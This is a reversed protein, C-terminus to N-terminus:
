VHCFRITTRKNLIRSYIINLTPPPMYMPAMSVKNKEKLDPLYSIPYLAINDSGNRSLGISKIRTIELNFYDDSNLIYLFTGDAQAVQQAYEIINTLVTDYDKCEFIKSNLELIDEYNKDQSDAM